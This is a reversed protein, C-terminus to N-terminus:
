LSCRATCPGHQPSCVKLIEPIPWKFTDSVNEVNGTVCMCEEGNGVNGDSAPKACYLTCCLITVCFAYPVIFVNQWAGPMTIGIEYKSLRPATQCPGKRLAWPSTHTPSPMFSCLLPRVSRDAVDTLLVNPLGGRDSYINLFLSLSTPEGLGVFHLHM